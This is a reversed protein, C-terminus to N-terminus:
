AGDADDPREPFTISFQIDFRNGDPDDPRSVGYQEAQEITEQFEKIIWKADQLTFHTTCILGGWGDDEIQTFPRPRRNPLSKTQYCVHLESPDDEKWNLDEEDEDEDEACTDDPVIVPKSESRADATLAVTARPQSAPYSKGDSGIRRSPSTASPSSLSSTSLEDVQVNRSIEERIRGVMQHHVGVHDAISRDSMEPKAKLAMRVARRKDANTRRLGVKDNEVNSGVAIWLAEHYTGKHVVARIPDIGALRAARVRHFGDTLWHQKSDHYVVVPPFTDGALMAEQYQEVTEQNIQERSQIEPDAVIEHLPVDTIREPPKM